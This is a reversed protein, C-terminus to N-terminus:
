KKESKVEKVKKVKPEKVLVAKDIHAHQVLREADETTELFATTGDKYTVEYKM